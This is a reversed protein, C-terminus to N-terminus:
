QLPNAWLEHLTYRGPEPVKFRAFGAQFLKFARPQLPDVGLASYLFAKSTGAHTVVGVTADRGPEEATDSLARDVAAHMRAQVDALPEVGGAGGPFDGTPDVSPIGHRARAAVLSPRDLGEFAGYDREIVGPDISWPVDLHRALAESTDVARRLPSSVLRTLGVRRLQEALLAVQEHGHANLPQDITRGILLDLQNADTRGHRVLCLFRTM